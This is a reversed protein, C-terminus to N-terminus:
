SLKGSESLSKMWRVNHCTISDDLRGNSHAECLDRVADRISHQPEFGSNLLKQSCLRYSRPDNSNTKVIECPVVSKIFEAIELITLNEFGANYIGPQARSGMFHEYVSVLDEIHINPRTQGGGFVKIRGTNLAQSSLINVAVDLRQRPSVGCVTAPRVCYMDIKDSYSLLVREAIMKTKNYVSIPVLALSEDVKDADQVGYVSGSSAYIFKRVGHRVSVEALNMACLVNVEWSLVPDLDVSPDNAINALHVVVEVGDMFDENFNRIDQKIVKLSRAEKLYNGFWQTDIVIVEHGKALLSQVLRTGTYGCGGTVLIKM